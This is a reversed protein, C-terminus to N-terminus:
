LTELSYIIKHLDDNEKAVEQCKKMLVDMCLIICRDCIYVDKEMILYTVQTRNLRCFSCKEM